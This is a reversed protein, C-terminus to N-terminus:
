HLFELLRLVVRLVAYLVIIAVIPSLDLGLGGLSVQPIFRRFLRLYPDVVDYLFRQIRNLWVNYPLPIWSTLIYAFVCLLYVYFVVVNQITDVADALLM